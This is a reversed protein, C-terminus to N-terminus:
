MWLCLKGSATGGAVWDRSEHFVAVAPVATVGEGGLQALQEGTGAYVDVFRNMNGICFKFKNGGDAAGKSGGGGGGGGGGNVGQGGPNAQWHPRLITVWRGTQNNHPIVTSPAFSKLPQGPSLISNASPLHHIKITDDYSSTAIQGAANFAAHSISLKSEHEGLLAPMRGAGKGTIKRLDWLKCTRDLSATSLLHPQTPHVSFGGIKKDSLQLLQTPGGTKSSSTRTDHMGFSGNLSAFYLLNPDTAPIQIGSLPDDIETSTPGYVETSIGKELNLCRISSDYSSTYLNQPQTPTFHMASITRTHLKFATIEPPPPDEDEEAEDDEEKKVSPLTQSADFMGLNGLKDGAFVMPREVTPHFGMAYIREPTIKIRSPEAGEWLSLGSMQERLARLEKDTTRTVDEEDFTREYPNAPGVNKLWNGAGDWHQGTVVVDNLKIDENRRQRKRRDEERIRENEEDAKRKAVESDAVIGQLRSSTRRPAFDEEKIKKKPAPKKGASGGSARGGSPKSSKPGLGASAANLQLEKLLAQNQAIKAQRQAEYDSDPATTAAAGGGSNKKSPM